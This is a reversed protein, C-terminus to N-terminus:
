EELLENLPCKECFATSLPEGEKDEDYILPYKCYHDCIESAIEFLKQTEIPKKKQQM